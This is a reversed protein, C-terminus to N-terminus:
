LMRRMVGDRLVFQHHLAAGVHLLLLPIFLKGLVEHGEHAAEALPSDSGVPLKPIDFLYFWNLPYKGASSIIWGTVPVAIMMFYFLWHLAHAASKQWNPVVMPLPPPRHTLRWYLRILSLLLVTLGLSKHIPMAPFTKDWPEHGVGLAIQVIIIVAIAWHLARAIGNYKQVSEM